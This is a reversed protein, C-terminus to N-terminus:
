FPLDDSDDEIHPEHHSGTDEKQMLEQEDRRIEWGRLENFWRRESEPKGPKLYSRGQMFFGVTVRQGPQFNDLLDCKDNVFTIAVQNEFKGGKDLDLILERKRFDNKFTETDKIREIFGTKTDTM